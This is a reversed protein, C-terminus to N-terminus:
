VDTTVEMGHRCLTQCSRQHPKGNITVRCEFCTGMACLPGRPEGKVSRRFRTEGAQALAVALITDETVTVRRGNISVIVHKDM